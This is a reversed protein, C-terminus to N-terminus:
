HFKMWFDNVSVFLLLLFFVDDVDATRTLDWPLCINPGWIWGNWGRCVGFYKGLSLSIVLGISSTCISISISRSNALFLPQSWHLKRVDNVFLCVYFCFFSANLYTCFCAYTSAYTPIYISAFSYPIHLYMCLCPRVFYLVFWLKMYLCLHCVFGLFYHVHLLM